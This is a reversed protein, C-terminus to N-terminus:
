QEIFKADPAVTLPYHETILRDKTVLPAQHFDAHAVIYRDFVDRTWKIALANTTVDEWHASDITIIKRNLLHSIIKEASDTIRKTEYLYELELVVIPSISLNHEGLFDLVTQSFNNTQKADLWCIIHTDLFIM